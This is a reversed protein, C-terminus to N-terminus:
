RVVSYFSYKCFVGSTCNYITREVSGGEGFWIGGARWFSNFINFLFIFTLNRFGGKTPQTCGSAGSKQPTSFYM